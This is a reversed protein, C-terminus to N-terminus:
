GEKKMTQMFTVKYNFLFALQYNLLMLHLVFLTYVVSELKLFPSKNSKPFIQLNVFLPQIM